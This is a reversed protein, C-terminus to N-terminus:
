VGRQPLFCLTHRRTDGAGAGGCDRLDSLVVRGSAGPGQDRRLLRDGVLGAIRM